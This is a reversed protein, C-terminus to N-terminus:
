RRVWWLHVFQNGSLSMHDPPDTVVSQLDSSREKCHVLRDPQIDWSTHDTCDLSVRQLRVDM